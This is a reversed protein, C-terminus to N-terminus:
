IWTEVIKPDDGPMRALCTLGSDALADRLSDLDDNTWAAKCPMISNDKMVFQPRVVYTNPFDKPHDYIVWVTMVAGDPVMDKTLIM